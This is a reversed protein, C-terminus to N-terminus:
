YRRAFNNISDVTRGVRRAIEKYSLRDKIIMKRIAAIEKETFRRRSNPTDYEKVVGELWEPEPLLSKPEYRSWNILKKHEKAWKWFDEVEIIYKQDNGKNLKKCRLGKKNIWQTVVSVQTHFCKAITTAYINENYIGINMRKAKSRVAHISRNLQRATIITPQSSYKSLLYNEERQTWKKSM